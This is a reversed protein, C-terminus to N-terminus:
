PQHGEDANRPAVIAQLQEVRDNLAILLGNADVGHGQALERTDTGLAHLSIALAERVQRSAAEARASDHVILNAAYTDLYADPSKTARLSLGREAFHEQLLKDRDILDAELLSRTAAQRAIAYDGFVSDPALGAAELPRVLAEPVGAAHQAFERAGKAAMANTVAAAAAGLAARVQPNATQGSASEFASRVKGLSAQVSQVQNGDTLRELSGYAQALTDGAQALAQYTAIDAKAALLCRDAQRQWIGPPQKSDRVALLNRLNDWDCTEALAVAAQTMYRSYLQGADRGNAALTAASQLDERCGGLLLLALTLALGLAPRGPPEDRMM